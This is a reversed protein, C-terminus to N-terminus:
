LTNYFEIVKQIEDASRLKLKNETIFADIKDKKDALLNEIFSKDKKIRQMTKGDFAYYDEYTRYEKRVEGSMEDKEQAIIKRVSLLLTIKGKALVQYFSNVDQADVAPFGNRFDMKAPMGTKPDPLLLERIYGKDVAIELQEHTLFHVQQSYINLRVKVTDYKRNNSLVLTGYKWDNFLFPFGAVDPAPNVFAKGGKDFVNFSMTTTEPVFGSGDQARGRNALGAMLLGFLLYRTM